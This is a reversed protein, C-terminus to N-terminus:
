AIIVKNHCSLTQYSYRKQKWVFQPNFHQFLFLLVLVSAGLTFTATSCRRVRATPLCRAPRASGAAGARGPKERRGLAGSQKM